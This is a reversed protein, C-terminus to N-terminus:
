PAVSRGKLLMDSDLELAHLLEQLSIAAESVDKLTQSLDPGVHRANLAVEGFSDSARQVSALTAQAEAATKELSTLMKRADESLGVTDLGQLKAQLIVLTQDIRELTVVAKEPVKQSQIDALIANVQALIRLMEQALTPFQDVAKVISDELNKLTSPEAPIYNNPVPFSLARVPHTKPDFFDILIYKLGSVGSSGLQARLGEPIKLKTSSGNGSAINLRELVTVRLDYSVEVHRRDPAVEIGSVTGITVGRYRVTSGMDLGTVAEDFYSTYRVAENDISLTGLYVVAGLGLLTGIVVFLGLKWHNAPTSM